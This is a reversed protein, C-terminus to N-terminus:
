QKRIQFELKQSKEEFAPEVRVTQPGTLVDYLQRRVEIKYTGPALLLVKDTAQAEERDNVYIGAWVPQGDSRVQVTVPQRLYCTLAKIEDAALTLTTTTELGQYSCSVTKSGARVTCPQGAQCPEGAVKVTGGAGVNLTLTATAVPTPTPPTPGAERELTVAVPLRQGASAQFSQRWPKFGDKRVEVVVAGPPVEVGDLVGDAGTQGRAEDNILVRANGPRSTIRLTAAAAPPAPGPESSAVPALTLTLAPLAGDVVALTTDVAAYGDKRIRLSVAEGTAELPQQLPTEGLREVGVYVEAGAPDTTVSLALPPGGNSPGLWLFGVVALVVALVAAAGAVLYRRRVPPKPPYPSVPRIITEESPGAPQVAEFAARMERASQFRDAPDKALAKMVAAVLPTPLDPRFTSPPPFDEEVIARMIAFEGSDRDLPLKGALMQYVTMGTSYLDSRHDLDGLGRVQEPSMYYLTGAIGQTLTAAGDSQRLKALGFDTVKVTGAKTLLINGPKIDRHIVGVSHAQELALLMQRIIPLAAQWALPGGQLLDTVTGGDVYEMVIFMGADTERMAHVAVIHRSDIRALARAEARFRRVFAADRALAPDIMKLAVLKDLNVDLAKYVIGMGGRGLVSQLLYGDIERGLLPDIAKDNAMPMLSAAYDPAPTELFSRAQDNAELLSLVERRVAPDDQCHVDLYARQEGPPLDLVADLLTNIRQWREADM